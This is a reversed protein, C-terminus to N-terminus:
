SGFDGQNQQAQDADGEPQAGAVKEMQVHLDDEEIVQEDPALANQEGHRRTGSPAFRREEAMSVPTNGTILPLAPSQEAGDTGLKSAWARRGCAEAETQLRSIPNCRRDETPRLESNPRATRRSHTSSINRVAPDGHHQPQAAPWREFVRGQGDPMRAPVPGLRLVSELLRSAM